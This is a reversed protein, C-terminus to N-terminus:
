YEESPDTIEVAMPQEDYTDYEDPPDPPDYYDDGVEIDDYVGGMTTEVALMNKSPQEADDDWLSKPVTYQEGGFIRALEVLRDYNRHLCSNLYDSSKDKYLWESKPLLEKLFDKVPLDDYMRLLERPHYKAGNRVIEVVTQGWKWIEAVDTMAAFLRFELSGFRNVTCLNFASYKHQDESFYNFYKGSVLSRELCWNIYTSNSMLLCFLNGHRDKPQTAVLLEELLYYFFTSQYTERVTQRLVNVHFHTSTRISTKPGMSALGKKLEALAAPLENLSVPHKLVFEFGDRLSGDPKTMWYLVRPLIADLPLLTGELELEVGIDSGLSGAFLGNRLDLIKTDLSNKSAL